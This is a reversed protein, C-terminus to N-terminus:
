RPLAATKTVFRNQRQSWTVRGDKRPLEERVQEYDRVWRDTRADSQRQMDGVPIPLEPPYDAGVFRLVDRVAEEPHAILEDFDVKLPSIRSADFFDNWKSHHDLILDELWRVQQFDPSDWADSSPPCDTALRFWENTEIARHWSIAQRITDSRNLYVYRVDPFVQSITSHASEVTGSASKLQDILWAMQYWHLKVSFVGNETTTERFCLNLYEHIGVSHRSNWQSLYWSVYDPRFYEEPRGAYGTNHLYEALLWSGSRPLTCILLARTPRDDRM